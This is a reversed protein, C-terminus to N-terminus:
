ARRVEQEEWTRVGPIDRRGTRVAARIASENPVLFERPLLTADSVEFKVVTQYTVGSGSESRVLAPAATPMVPVVPAAPLLEEVRAAPIGADVAARAAAAREEEERLAKQRAAETERRIKDEQQRRLTEFALLSKRVSRDADELNAVLPAFLEIVSKKAADLPRTIELRRDNTAKLAVGIRGLLDSAFQAGTIDVVSLANCDLVLDLSQRHLSEVVQEPRPAIAVTTQEKQKATKTAM